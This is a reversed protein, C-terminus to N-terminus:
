FWCSACVFEIIDNTVEMDEYSNVFTRKYTGQENNIVKMAKYGGMIKDKNYRYLIGKYVGFMSSIIISTNKIVTM